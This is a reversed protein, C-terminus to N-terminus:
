LYVLMVAPAKWVQARVVALVAVQQPLLSFPVRAVSASGASFSPDRVIDIDVRTGSRLRSSIMPPTGPMRLDGRVNQTRLRRM